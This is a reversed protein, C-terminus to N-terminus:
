FNHKNYLIFLQLFLPNIEKFKSFYNSQKLKENIQELFAKDNLAEVIQKERREPVGPTTKYDYEPVAIHCTFHIQLKTNQEDDRIVDNLDYYLFEELKNKQEFPLKTGFGKEILPLLEQTIIATDIERECFDFLAEALPQCVAIERIKSVSNIDTKLVYPENLREKELNLM